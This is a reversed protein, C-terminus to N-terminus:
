ADKRKFVVDVQLLEGKENFTTHPLFLVAKYGLEVVRSILHHMEGQGEYHPILSLELHIAGIKDLVELAGNIVPEEFGQVDAKLFINKANPFEKVINNISNVPTEVEGVQGLGSIQQLDKKVELLSSSVSNATIKISASGQKEGVAIRDYVTWNSIGKAKQAIVEHEKPMPEFSVVQVKSDVYPLVSEAFQGINAGIDFITDFSGKNIIELYRRHDIPSLEDQYRVLDFGSKRVLSRIGSLLSNM